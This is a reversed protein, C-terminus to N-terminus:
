SGNLLASQYQCLALSYTSLAAGEATGGGGTHVAVYESSVFGAQGGSTEVGLWGNSAVSTVTLLTGTALVTISDYNTGPGERLRLGDTATVRVTQGVEFDSGGPPDVSPDDGGGEDEVPDAAEAIHLF